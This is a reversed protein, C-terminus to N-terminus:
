SGVDISIAKKCIVSKAKKKSGKKDSKKKKFAKIIDSVDMKLISKKEKNEGAM